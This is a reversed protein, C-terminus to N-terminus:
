SPTSVSRSAACKEPKRVGAPRLATSVSSFATQFRIVLSEEMRKPGETVLAHGSFAFGIRKSPNTVVAEGCFASGIRKPVWTVVARRRPQGKKLQRRGEM